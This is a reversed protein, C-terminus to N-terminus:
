RVRITIRTSGISLRYTGRTLRRNGTLTLRGSRTVHGRALTRGNRSLRASAGKARAVKCTVTTKKTKKSYTVKCTVKADRGAAGQAGSAGKPGAPGQPGAGPAVGTGSLEVSSASDENSVLQLASDENSVLQLSGSRAGAASPSFSVQFECTQQFRLAQGRCGDSVIGFDAANTGTISAGASLRLTQAGLNRVTVSRVSVDGLVGSGFAGGSGRAVPASVFVEASALPGSGDNGGVILVRGDALVAAAPAERAITMTAPVSSFTNTVPDFVEASSLAWGGAILVRGDPLAAAAPAYRASTMDPLASFSNTVPDFVEASALSSAGDTGGAILVRGDPLAAATTGWRQHSLPISGTFVGAAGVFPDFVEASAQGSCCGGAILVRGDPLVAAAPGFRVKGMAPVGANTFTNTVPDFVEASNLNLYPVASGNQGGVILVRGDPLMAAAPNLRATTM